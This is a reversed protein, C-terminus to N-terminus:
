AEEVTQNSNHNIHRYGKKRIWKHRSSIQIFILTVFMACGGLLYPLEPSKMYLPMAVVPSIVHGVPLIM